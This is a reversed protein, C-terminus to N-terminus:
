SEVLDLEKLLRLYRAYKIEQEEYDKKRVYAPVRLDAESQFALWQSPKMLNRKSVSADAKIGCTLVISTISGNQSFTSCFRAIIDAATPYNETLNATIANWDAVTIKNPSCTISVITTANDVETRQKTIANVALSVCNIVRENETIGIGCRTIKGKLCTILENISIGTSDNGKASACIYFVLIRLSEELSNLNQIAQSADARNPLAHHSLIILGDFAIQLQDLSDAFPMYRQKNDYQEPLILLTPIGQSRISDCVDLLLDKGVETISAFVLVIDTKAPASVKSIVHCKGESNHWLSLIELCSLLHIDNKSADALVENASFEVLQCGSEGIGLLYISGGEFQIKQTM